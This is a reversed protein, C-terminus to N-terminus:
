EVGQGTFSFRGLRKIAERNIGGIDGGVTRLKFEEQTAENWKGQEKLLRVKNETDRIKRTFYKRLWYAPTWPSLYNDSM